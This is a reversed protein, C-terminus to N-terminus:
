LILILLSSFYDKICIRKPITSRLRLTAPDSHIYLSSQLKLDHKFESTFMASRCIHSHITQQQTTCIEASYYKTNQLWSSHWYRHSLLFPLMELLALSFHEPFCAMERVSSCAPCRRSLCTWHLTHNHSKIQCNRHVTCETLAVTVLERIVRVTPHLQTLWFYM